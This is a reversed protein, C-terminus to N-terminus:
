KVVGCFDLVVKDPVLTYNRFERHKVLFIIVDARELAEEYDVLEFGDLADINPEVTLVNYDESILKRCIKLASSERLDDIDPKYALGMCAVVVRTKDFKSLKEVIKALVWETKNINIERATKIIKSDDKFDSILFWPDVAICHGGVGCGPQMIDVRPHKSALDILEWINIHAKDAIISLENVFAINVDRYANEVLKCMEATKANTTHLDGKVFINYFSMAVKASKEDLGGIIRDNHTLEYIVQGPLVREPCYAININNRLEPMNSFIIESMKSTTGIPCTSEIIVLNGKRLYPIIRKIASEVYSIDPEFNDNLPTPVAILFVDANIPTTDAILFGNGVVNNVLGDLDPEIIHIKGQNITEIVNEEVDVGHVCIKKSAILAATPLGIYGLGMIVVKIDKKM